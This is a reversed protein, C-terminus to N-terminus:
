QGVNRDMCVNSIEGRFLAKKSVVSDNPTMTGAFSSVASTVLPTHVNHLSSVNARVSNVQEDLRTQQSDIM